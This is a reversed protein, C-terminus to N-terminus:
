LVDNHDVTFNYYFALKSNNFWPLWVNVMNKAVSVM